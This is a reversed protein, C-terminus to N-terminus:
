RGAARARAGGGGGARVVVRGGHRRAGRRPRERYMWGLSFQAEPDGDRAASCYLMPRRSRIRPWAKAMSTPSAGGRDHGDDHARVRQPAIAPAVTALRHGARLAARCDVRRVRGARGRDDAAGIRWTCRTLGCRPCESGGAADAASRAEYWPLAERLGSRVDHVPITAWCGSRRAIDAQSHRVDGPASTALCRTAARAARSPTGGAARAAGAGSREAVHPRRGRRQVGARARRSGRLVAALLNAQVVNAVHCFDRTTEGDGHIVIPTGTLMADVWRPIVAAYAGEPDQRRDSCTSTACASRRWATAAASCTPTCSTSSSPSRTRRCRAASATKWRPCAPITATPRARRPTSSGRSVRTAPRSSCTSSGPRTPRTRGCRIRSRARCRASHRRTCCSTSAAAHRRRVGDPDM